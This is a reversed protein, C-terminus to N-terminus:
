KEIVVLHASAAEEIFNATAAGMPVVFVSTSDPAIFEDFATSSATGDWRLFIGKLLATVYIIATKANLTVATSASLTADYTVALSASRPSLFHNQQVDM